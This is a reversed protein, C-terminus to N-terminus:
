EHKEGLYISITGFTLTRWQCKDFGAGTMLATMGARQPVAEISQPLYTYARSDGSVIRGTFPIVYRTYLNYLGHTLTGTPVSLEVVCLVGGPRLVRYMERYGAMLNEFNRVGYAVTVLDFSNDELPLQLCDAKAFHILSQQDAPLTRLKREAIALMGDSLDIGEIHAMPLRDHLTFVLDGTGTAVDLVHARQPDIGNAKLMNLAMTLAKDRWYRHLGFTMVTNMRDYAPAINDFMLEVQAGKPDTASYPKIEEPSM